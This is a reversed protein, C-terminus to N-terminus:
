RIPCAVIFLHEYKLNVEGSILSYKCAVTVKFKQSYTTGFRNTAICQYRGSHQPDVNELTVQSVAITSNPPIPIVRNDPREDPRNSDDSDADEGDDSDEDGAFKDYKLGSMSSEIPLSAVDTVERTTRNAKRQQPNKPKRSLTTKFLDKKVDVNDHKWKFTIRSNSTSAATCNLTVVTGKLALIQAEPEDIILPKPTEDPIYSILAMSNNTNVIGIAM